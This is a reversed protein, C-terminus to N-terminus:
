NGFPSQLPRSQRGNQTRRQEAQRGAGQRRPRQGIAETALRHQQARHQDHTSGAEHGRECAAQVLKDDPTEDRANPKAGGHGVGYGQHALIAGVPPASREGVGHEAAERQTRSETAKESGPHYRLPAPAADQHEAPGRRQDQGHQHGQQQRLRHAVHNGLVLRDLANAAHQVADGCRHGVCGREDHVFFRDAVVALLPM